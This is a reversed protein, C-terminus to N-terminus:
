LRGKENLEDEYFFRDAGFAPKLDNLWVAKEDYAAFFPRGVWDSNRGQLMQLVFVKEGAVESVGVVQIKGPYASMSPGRVTRALGSVQTIAERYVQRARVLPVSFYPNAGTNRAVFM